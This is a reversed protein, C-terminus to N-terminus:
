VERSTLGRSFHQVTSGSRGFFATRGNSGNAGSTVRLDHVAIHRQTGPIKLARASIWNRNYHM